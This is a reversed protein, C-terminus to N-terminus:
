CTKPETRFAPFEFDKKHCKSFSSIVRDTLIWYNITVIKLEELGDKWFLLFSAM